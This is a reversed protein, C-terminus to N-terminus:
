GFMCASRDEEMEMVCRKRLRPYKGCVYHWANVVMADSNSWGEGPSLLLVGCAGGPNGVEISGPTLPSPIVLCYVGQASRMLRQEALTPASSCLILVSQVATDFSNSESDKGHTNRRQQPSKNRSRAASKRGLDSDSDSDAAADSLEARGMHMGEDEDGDDDDDDDDHMHLVDVESAAGSKGGQKGRSLSLGVRKALLSNRRPLTTLFTLVCKPMGCVLYHGQLAARGYAGRVMPPVLAVDIGYSWSRDGDVRANHLPRARPAVATPVTVGCSFQDYIDPQTSHNHRSLNPTNTQLMAIETLKQSIQDIQQQFSNSHIAKDATPTQSSPAEEGTTHTHTHTHIYMRTVGSVLMGKKRQMYVYM